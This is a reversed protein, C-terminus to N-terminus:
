LLLKYTLRNEKKETEREILKTVKQKMYKLARNNPGHANLNTQGEPLNVM